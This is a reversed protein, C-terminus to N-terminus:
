RKMKKKKVRYDTMVTFNVIRCTRKKRKENEKKKKKKKKKKKTTIVIDPRWASILNDIQTVFDRFNEHRM